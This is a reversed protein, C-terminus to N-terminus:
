PRTNFRKAWGSCLLLLLLLCTLPSFLLLLLLLAPCSSHLLVLLLLPQILPL